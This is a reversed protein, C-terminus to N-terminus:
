GGLEGPVPFGPRAGRGWRKPEEKGGEFGLREGQEGQFLLSLIAQNSPLTTKNSRIKRCKFIPEGVSLGM